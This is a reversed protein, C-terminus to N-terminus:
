LGCTAHLQRALTFLRLPVGRKACFRGAAAHGWQHCHRAAKIALAAHPHLGTMLM